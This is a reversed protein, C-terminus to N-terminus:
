FPLPFDEPWEPNNSYNYEYNEVSRRNFIPGAPTNPWYYTFPPSQYLTYELGTSQNVAVIAYSRIRGEPFDTASGVVESITKKETPGAPIDMLGYRGISGFDTYNINGASYELDWNVNQHPVQADGIQVLRRWPETSLGTQVDCVIKWPQLLPKDPNTTLGCRVGDIRHIVNETDHYITNGVVRIAPYNDENIGIFSYGNDSKLKYVTGVHGWFTGDAYHWWPLSHAQLGTQLGVVPLLYRKWLPEFPIEFSLNDWKKSFVGGLSATRPTFKLSPILALHPNTQSGSSIEYDNKLTLIFDTCLGAGFLGYLSITPEMTLSAYASLELKFSASKGVEPELDAPDPEEEFHRFSFGQSPQYSFGYRGMDYTYNISTTLTVKAGAGIGARFEIEPTLIVGPAVPIGPVFYLTFLYLEKGFNWEQSISFDAKMDLKPHFTFHLFQLEGREIKCAAKMGINLVAGLSASCNDGSYSLSLTPSSINKDLSHIARTLVNAMDDTSFAISGDARRTFNVPNGEGDRVESLYNGLELEMGGEEIENGDGDFMEGGFEMRDFAKPFETTMQLYARGHNEDGYPQQFTSVKYVGGNPLDDTAEFVLLSGEQIGLDGPVVMDFYPAFIDNAGFKAYDGEPTRVRERGTNLVTCRRLIDPTMLVAGRALTSAGSGAVYDRNTAEGVPYVVGRGCTLGSATASTKVIRTGEQTVFTVEVGRPYTRAPVLFYFKGMVGPELTVGEGCDLTLVATGGSVDSAYNRGPDVTIRGSLAGGSLDRLEVKTIVTKEDFSQGVKLVSLVNCMLVGNGASGTGVMFALAPDPQPIGKAMSYRQTAPLDMAVKGGSVVAGEQYPFFAILDGGPVADTSRFVATRGGDTIDASAVQLARVTGDAGALGIRDGASWFSEMRVGPNDVLIARTAPGDPSISATISFAEPGAPPPLERTCSAAALLSMGCLVLISHNKKM